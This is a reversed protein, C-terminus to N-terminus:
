SQNIPNHNNEWFQRSQETVSKADPAKATRWEEPLLSRVGFRAFRKDILLIVGRDSTTRILRGAAQLVRNLGPYLYAYEFGDNGKDRFYERILERERSIAPLGLGLVSVGSLRDGVLDIGEGFIGGMVAFGVLTKDNETNFHELFDERAEETMEREQVIIRMEDEDCEFVELITQLYKYSPFFLLHNGKKEMVAAKLLGAVEQKTAERERYFTSVKDAVLPLLNKSPFPSPLRLKELTDTLGLVEQFYQPPTLTASFLITTRARHFAEKMRVSPDLCYQKLRLDRGDPETITSYREDYQDSTKIFWNAEFYRDLLDSRFPRKIDLNLWHEAAATFKKLVPLIDTPPEKESEPKGNEEIQKKRKLFATNVKGMIKYLGSLEKKLGKRTDLFPQKQIEASFMDRARDVLNHAEDVLFIYDGSKEAFFRKLFVRPDFAYNYDCIIIDSWLSIELSFEFPCLDHKGAIEEVLKRTLTNLSFAEERGKKLRDFYGKAFPCEEAVCTAEPEFCTKQKATISLSKIQLGKDTLVRLAKRAARQGTTRATLYFIKEGHGVPLAKAAPFIAAMTKGIGTPAQIMAQNSDRIARFVEVAMQRQGSRYESFPFDLSEISQNREEQWRAIAIAWNQYQVVLDDIFEKLDSVSFTRSIEVTQRSKLEMYTLQVDITDHDSLGENLVLMAAYVKGQAWHLKDGQGVDSIDGTFSKIEEVLLGEPRRFLGDMRGRVTLLIDATEWSREISVEKEYNDPRSGQIDQHARLGELPRSPSTFSFGLDGSRM